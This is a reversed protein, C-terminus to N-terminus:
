TARAARRFQAQFARFKQWHRETILSRLLTPRSPEGAQEPERAGGAQRTPGATPEGAPSDGLLVAVPVDLARALAALSSLRASRKIGQELKKVLEASLGARGALLEQTWGHDRRLQALRGGDVLTEGGKGATRSLKEQGRQHVGPLV